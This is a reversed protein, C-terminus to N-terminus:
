DLVHIVVAFGRAPLVVDRQGAAVGPASRCRQSAYALVAAVAVTVFWSRAQHAPELLPAVAM